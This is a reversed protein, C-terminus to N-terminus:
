VLFGFYRSFIDRFNEIIQFHQLLTYNCILYLLLFWLLSAKILRMAHFSDNKYGELTSLYLSVLISSVSSIQTLSVLGVKSSNMAVEYGYNQWNHIMICIDQSELPHFTPIFSFILDTNFSASFVIAESIIESLLFFQALTPSRQEHKTAPFFGSQTPSFWQPSPATSLTHDGNWDTKHWQHLPLNM